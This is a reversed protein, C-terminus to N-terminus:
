ATRTTGKKPRMLGSSLASLAERKAQMRVHSYYEIMEQTIHGAIAKLTADSAGAEALETIATQRLDHFRFRALAAVRDAIEM